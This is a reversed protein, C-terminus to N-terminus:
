PSEQHPVAVRVGRLLSLPNQHNCAVAPLTTMVLIAFVALRGICLGLSPASQLADVMADSRFVPRAPLLRLRGGDHRARPSRLAPAGADAGAGRTGLQQRLPLVRGRQPRRRVPEGAGRDPRRRRRGRLVLERFADERASSANADAYSLFCGAPWSTARRSGLRGSAVDQAAASLCALCGAPLLFLLINFFVRISM